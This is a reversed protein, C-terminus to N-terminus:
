RSRKKRTRELSNFAIRHEDKCFEAVLRRGSKGGVPFWDGCHKCKRVQAGGSLAQGLQLWLADLLRSPSHTISITKEAKNMVLRAKLDAIPWLPPRNSALADRMQEAVDILQPIEDKKTLPGYQTIFNFLEELTKVNAFSTFLWPYESVRLPKRGGGLGVIRAEAWDSLPTDLFWDGESQGSQRPPRKAPAIKYGGKDVYSTFEVQTPTM